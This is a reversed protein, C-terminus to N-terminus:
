GDGGKYGPKMKFHNGKYKKRSRWKPERWKEDRHFHEYDECVARFSKTQADHSRGNKRFYRFHRSWIM